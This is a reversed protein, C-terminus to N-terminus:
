ILENIYVAEYHLARDMLLTKKKEHYEIHKAVDQCVLYAFRPTKGSPLKRLRGFGQINSQSSSVANTLVTTTLNPIDVATGAGILTAIRLDPEMLNEYPDDEVYRRVDKGPFKRKMYETLETCMAISACFVLAKEGPEYDKQLWLGRVIKELMAFYNAKARPMRMVSKEFEHHSYSGDGGKWRIWRPDDARWMVAKAAIYKDYAAGQFRESIPYATEYMRNIFDDDALLTASLATSAEVNSYLDIKFNLHFDQHVEDILRHGAKLLEFFESPTCAYGLAETTQEGHEEYLKLWNQITKNSVLVMKVYDMEGSQALLLLAQLQASGRVVMLDEVQIDYTKRIDIIWKDLYMPKVIVVPLLGLTSIARLACYSKGKGTQMNVFKSRPPPPACLYEVAAVQDERTVWSAFVPLDVKRAAPIVNMVTQVMEGKLSYPSREIHDLFEQLTNIHFRYESRDATATAFVRLPQNHLFTPRRGKNQVRVMGRQVYKRAFDNVAPQARASVQRVCFNHTSIIITLEAM